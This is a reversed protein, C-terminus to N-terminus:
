PVKVLISTDIYLHSPAKVLLFTMQKILLCFQELLNVCYLMLKKYVGGGLPQRFLYVTANNKEALVNYLM